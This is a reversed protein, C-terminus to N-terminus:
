GALFFLYFIISYDHEARLHNFHTIIIALEGCEKALQHAKELSALAGSLKGM